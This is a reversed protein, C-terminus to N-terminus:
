FIFIGQLATKTDGGDDRDKDIAAVSYYRLSAGSPPLAAGSCTPCYMLAKQPAAPLTPEGTLWSSWPMQNPVNTNPDTGVTLCNGAVYCNIGYATPNSRVAERGGKLKTEGREFGDHRMKFNGAMREQLLTVQMATIGILTMLLLMILGVFLAAGRQRALFPNGPISNM